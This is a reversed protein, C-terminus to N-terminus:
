TDVLLEIVLEFHPVYLNIICKNEHNLIAFLLILTPHLIIYVLYSLILTM